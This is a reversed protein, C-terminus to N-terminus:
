SWDAEISVVVCGYIYIFFLVLSLIGGQKVENVTRFCGSYVGNWLVTLGLVRHCSCNVRPGHHWSSFSFGM